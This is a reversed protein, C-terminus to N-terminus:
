ENRLVHAPNTKTIQFTRSLITVVAILIVILAPIAFLMLQLDIHYAYGELWNQVVWYTIPMSLLTAIVILSTFETTLLTIVQIVSAGLVKRIGIEKQRKAVTFSALGFIGLCTIILAFLSLTGFVAQFQQDSRYHADFKEDLFFYKFPSDFHTEYLSEIEEVQNKYDGQNMRISFYVGWNHAHRFVMPLHNSKVGTQHFNKIVGVIQANDGFTIKQGIAEQPDAIGWLRLCEENVIVADEQKGERFNEGAVVEINMTPIFHEDFFYTFFNYNHREDSEVLNIGTTSGMLSTPLGPISNSLAVSTFAPKNLLQDYFPRFNQMEKWTAPARVVLVQDTTLGLDKSQMYDLQRISTFTQILLFTAIAFQFVVLSRRLLIGSKNTTM